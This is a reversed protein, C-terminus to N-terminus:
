TPCWACALNIVGVITYAIALIAIANRVAMM